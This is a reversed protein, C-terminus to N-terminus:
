LGSKHSCISAEARPHSKQNQHNAADKRPQRGRRATRYPRMGSDIMLVLVIEIVPIVVIAMMMFLMLLGMFLMLLMVVLMVVVVSPRQIGPNHASGDQNHGNLKSVGSNFALKICDNDM